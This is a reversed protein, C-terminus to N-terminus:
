LVNILDIVAEAQKKNKFQFKHCMGYEKGMVMGSSRWKLSPYLEVTGNNFLKVISGDKFIIYKPM